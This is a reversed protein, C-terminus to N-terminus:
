GFHTQEFRDLQSGGSTTTPAPASDMMGALMADDSVKSITKAQLNAAEIDARSKQEAAVQKRNKSKWDKQFQKM